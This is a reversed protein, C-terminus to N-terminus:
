LTNRTAIHKVDPNTTVRDDILNRDVISRMLDCQEERSVTRIERSYIKGPM